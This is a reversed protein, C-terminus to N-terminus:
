LPETDSCPLSFRFSAGGLRGSQCSVEGGLQHAVQKVFHLGLGLGKDDKPPDGQVFRSFIQERQDEHVGPGEDDVEIWVQNSPLSQHVALRAVVQGGSPSYKIANDLLNQIVRLLLEHDAQVYYLAENEELTLSVGTSKAKASAQYIAELVVNNVQVETLELQSHEARQAELFGQAMNLTRQAATAINDLLAQNIEGEAQSKADEIMALISAQPARLDHSLFRVTDDRQQQLNREDTRDILLLLTFRNHATAISFTQASFICTQGTQIQITLEQPTGQDILTTWTQNGLFGPMSAGESLAFLQKALGNLKVLKHHEDAIMVPHPHEELITRFFAESEGILSQLAEITRLKASLPDTASQTASQAPTSWRFLNGLAMDPHLKALQESAFRSVWELRQWSWLPYVMLVAFIAQAPAIFVGARAVGLWVVGLTAVVFALVGIALQKSASAGFLMLLGGVAIAALVWSWVVPLHRYHLGKLLADTAQAHVEVGPMYHGGPTVFLDQLGVATAGVFVLKGQLLSDPVQGNLVDAYSITAVSGSPGAFPVQWAHTPWAPLNPQLTHAMAWSMPQLPHAGNLRTDLSRLVGDSDVKVGISVTQGPKIHLTASPMLWGDQLNPLNGRDAQIAPWYIPMNAKSISEALAKDEEAHKSAETLVIDMAVAQVGAQSLRDILRAHLSRPWPWQGLQSLSSDDIAVLLLRPDATRHFHKLALDDFLRNLSEPAKTFAFLACFVTLWLALYARPKFLALRNGPRNM